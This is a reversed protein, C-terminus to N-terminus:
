KGVEKTMMDVSKEWSETPRAWAELIKAYDEKLERFLAGSRYARLWVIRRNHMLRKYDSYTWQSKFRMRSRDNM